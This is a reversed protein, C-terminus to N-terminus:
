LAQHLSFCSTTSSDSRLRRAAPFSECQSPASCNLKCGLRFYYFLFFLFFSLRVLAAQWSPFFIEAADFRSCASSAAEYKVQARGLTCLIHPHVVWFCLFCHKFTGFVTHKARQKCGSSEGSFKTKNSRGLTSFPTFLLPFLRDLFHM